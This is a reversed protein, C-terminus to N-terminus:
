NRVKSYNKLPIQKDSVKLLKASTPYPKESKTFCTSSARQTGFRNNGPM